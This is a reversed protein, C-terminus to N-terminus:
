LDLRPFQQFSADATGVQYLHPFLSGSYGSLGPNLGVVSLHSKMFSLLNQVALSPARPIPSCGEQEYVQHLVAVWLMPVRFVFAVLHVVGTGGGGFFFESYSCHFTPKIGM